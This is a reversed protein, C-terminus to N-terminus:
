NLQKWYTASDSNASMYVNRNTTDVYIQGEFAPLVANTVPSGSGKVILPQGCYMFMSDSTISTVHIDGLNGNALREKLTSVESLLLVIAEAMVNGQLDANDTIAKLLLTIANQSIVKDTNTGSVQVISTKDVKTNLLTDTETTTYYNDGTGDPKIWVNISPDTPETDQIAVGSSGTDGKAGNTVTFTSSTGDSFAITYTDVLGSTGTKTISTVSIGNTVTFTSTTNNSLTIKYTDVLGSTSAKTISSISTGTDGKAGNTVTFTTTTGNTYAVTYTDVLGSTSKKSISSVGNGTAGTEGQPGQAGTAGSMDVLYEFNSTGKVYLKANDTDEVSGTDILVFKGEAVNAKDAEMNAISTYTKYISFADPKLITSTKIYAGTTYDWTYVHYDSGIYGPHDSVSKANTTAAIANNTATVANATATNANSTATNASNTAANANTTATNANNTAIISASTANNANNTAIISASTANNANATATNANTTATDANSASTNAKSAATNASSAADNANTTATNANSIAANTNATATNANETATNAEVTAKNASDAATNAAITANVANAIANPLQYMATVVAKDGNTYNNDTHHYSTDVIFGMDNLLESLKTPVTCPQELKCISGTDLIDSDTVYSEITSNSDAEVIVGSSVKSSLLVDEDTTGTLIINAM